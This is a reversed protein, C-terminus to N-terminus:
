EELEIKLTWAHFCPIEDITLKPVEIIIRNNEILRWKLMHDSGILNIDKVIEGVLLDITITDTWKTFICFLKNNKRTFYVEQATGAPERVPSKRTGYIAEGNVELWNGIDILREQMIVPIRGDATPGVNLLLNGGRSVIDILEHILEESSNYDEIGEARNFGYSGGIGRSEEWPHSLLSEDMDKYESSFYDGHQGPMDRAFRDNVVVDEKVPSENYLWSLFEKTKWYEESGDWEGGDSFILSPEYSEILEKLQPILHRDVYQDEPIKYKSVIKDPLYYGSETRHTWSSEWEIISYYIGMKLGSSRVAGSLEGLLDRKPGIEMSNWNKKYPSKTPWLCFGDHHKSTLVVYKAGSKQFLDAWDFPNFLEARFLPAFDRYEFDKGFNRNHFEEGGNAPNYMVRAYYWEAYSAYLGPELERWAPVSYVGWHIFIGFKADEFWTPIPRSDLSKWSNQYEQATGISIQFSFILVILVIRMIIKSTKVLRM